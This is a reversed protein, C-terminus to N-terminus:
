MPNSMGTGHTDGHEGRLQADIAKQYDGHYHRLLGEFEATMQRADDWTRPITRTPAPHASRGSGRPPEGARGPAAPVPHREATQHGPLQIHESHEKALHEELETSYAFRL